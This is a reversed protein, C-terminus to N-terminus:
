IVWREVFRELSYFAEAEDPMTYLLVFAYMHGLYSARPAPRYINGNTGSWHPFPPLGHLKIDQWRWIFAHVM